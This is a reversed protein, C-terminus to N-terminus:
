QWMWRLCQGGWPFSNDLCRRDWCGLGDKQTTVTVLPSFPTNPLLTTTGEKQSSKSLALAATLTPLGVVYWLLVERIEEISV